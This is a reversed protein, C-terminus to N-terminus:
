LDTSTKKWLYFDKIVQIKKKNFDAKSLLFPSAPAATASLALFLPLSLKFWNNFNNRLVPFRLLCFILNFVQLSLELSRHLSSILVHLLQSFLNLNLIIKEQRWKQFIHHFNVKKFENIVPVHDISPFTSLLLRRIGWILWPEITHQSDEMWLFLKKKKKKKKRNILFELWSTSAVACSLALVALISPSSFTLSSACTSVSCYARSSRSMWRSSSWRWTFETTKKTNSNVYYQIQFNGKFKWSIHMRRLPGAFRQQPTM